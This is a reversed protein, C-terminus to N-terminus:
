GLDHESAQVFALVRVMRRRDDGPSGFVGATIPCSRITSVDHHGRRAMAARWGPDAKTIEDVAAFDSDLIPM